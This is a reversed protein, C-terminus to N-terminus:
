SPAGAREDSAARLIAGVAELPDDRNFVASGAVFVNAGARAADVVTREDVGGDVEIDLALGAEDAARRVQAVKPLVDAIFSQGGFGPFVTMCLVLDVLPLYPELADFPTDPNAALGVRLGLDRMQACLAATEGVEVHVTCGDAGADRFPELYRAPDTIMLHTDFFLDSHARLSAVVPPGITLNPVFHGDMVDVHLWDTGPTIRGVADALSGFDASLISPAVRLEPRRTEPTTPM